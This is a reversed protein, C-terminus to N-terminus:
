WVAACCGIGGSTLTLEATGLAAESLLLVGDPVPDPVGVTTGRTCVICSVGCFCCCRLFTWICICCSEEFNIFLFRSEESIIGASNSGVFGIWLLGSGVILFM